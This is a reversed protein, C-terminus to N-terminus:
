DSRMSTVTPTYWLKEPINYDNGTYPLREKFVEKM